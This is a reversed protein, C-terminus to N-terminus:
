LMIWRLFGIRSSVREILTVGDLELFAKERGGMRTSNGGAIIAGLIKM